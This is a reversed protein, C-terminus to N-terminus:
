PSRGGSRTWILVVGCKPNGAVRYKPPISAAGTYIEMGAIARPIVTNLDSGDAHVDDIYYQVGCQSFGDRISPAGRTSSVEGSIHVRFGPVRRLLESTQHPNLQAIEEQTFFTGTETQRRRLFGVQELRHNLEEAEVVVPDLETAVPSITFDGLDVTVPRTVSFELTVTGAAYGLRRVRITLNGGSVGSLWFRGDSDTTAAIAQELIEVTADAVPLGTASDRVSGVFTAQQAGLPVGALAFHTALLATLRM